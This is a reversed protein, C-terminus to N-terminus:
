PTEILELDQKDIWIDDFLIVRSDTNSTPFYCNWWAWKYIGFKFYYRYNSFINPGTQEFKLEDNRWIQINGKRRNRTLNIRIKWKDWEGRIAEGLDIQQQEGTNDKILVLVFRDNLIRIAAPPYDMFKETIHFQAIIEPNGNQEFEFDEPLYTKMGVWYDRKPKFLKRYYGLTALENRNMRNRWYNRKEALPSNKCNLCYSDKDEQYRQEIEQLDFVNMGDLDDCFYQAYVEPAIRNLEVRLVKNTANEPDPVITTSKFNEWADIRSDQTIDLKNVAHETRWNRRYDEQSDAIIASDFSFYEFNETFLNQGSANIWITLLVFGLIKKQMM